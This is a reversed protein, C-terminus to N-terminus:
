RNPRWLKAEPSRSYTILPLSSALYRHQLLLPDAQHFSPKVRWPETVHFRENRLLCRKIALRKVAEATLTLTALETEHPVMEVKAPAVKTSASKEPKGLLVPVYSFDWAVRLLAANRTTSKVSGLETSKM